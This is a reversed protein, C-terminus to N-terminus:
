KLRQNARIVNQREHSSVGKRDLCWLLFDTRGNDLEVVLYIRRKRMLTLMSDADTRDVLRSRCFRFSVLASREQDEEFLGRNFITRDDPSM